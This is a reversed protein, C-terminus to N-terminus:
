RGDSLEIIQLCLLADDRAPALESEPRAAIWLLVTQALPGPNGRRGNPRSAIVFEREAIMGM